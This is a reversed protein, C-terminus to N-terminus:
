EPKMGDICKKREPNDNKIMESAKEAIMIIPANTNGSPITPMISGDVVRLNTIGKVKLEPDVVTTEDDPNGMKCTGSPHYINLPYGKAVCRLYTDSYIEHKECGPMKISFMKAGIKEFASTNTVMNVCQKMIDVVKNLDEKHEFLNFDILPYAYPDDSKLRITGRSKPKLLVPFFTFTNEGIYPNYVKEYTEESIGFAQRTIGTSDTALSGSLLIIQVDPWDLNADNYKTNLFAMGEIGCLTTDPGTAELKYKLLSTPLIAKKMLIPEPYKTKFNLIVNGVHDQLNNGVPLDAIVEIGLDELHEKPGIGSLMLIQPSNIAGSSLLVEKRARIDHIKGEKQFRAGYANKNKSILIKQVYAENVIHLNDRDEAPILFAKATSCRRGDRITGQIKAFGTQKKGNIDTYEYGLEGAAEAFADKMENTEQPTSVTLFGSTSHHGNNAFEPDTNNESKLFYSYVDKWSWGTAGTEAWQDYDRKNGRVYLMCNILSSGGVGKGRPVPFQRNPYGAGARKQPMSLFQWDNDTFQNLLGGVPIETIPDVHGGAELLLVTVCPDESLRSALVSGASGAGVVIYDYEKHFYNSLDPQYAVYPLTYFFLRMLTRVIDLISMDWPM